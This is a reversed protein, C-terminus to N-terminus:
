KYVNDIVYTQNYNLLIHTISEYLIRFYIILIMDSYLHRMMVFERYSQRTAEYNKKAADSVWVSCVCNDKYVQYVSFYVAM